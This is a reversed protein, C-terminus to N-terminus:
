SVAIPGSHSNFLHALALEQFRSASFPPRLHADRSSCRNRSNKEPLWNGAIPAFNGRCKLPCNAPVPGDTRIDGSEALCMDNNHFSKKERHALGYSASLNSSNRSRCEGTRARLLERASRQAFLTRIRQKGTQYDPQAISCRQGSNILGGALLTMSATTRRPPLAVARQPLKCLHLLLEWTGEGLM